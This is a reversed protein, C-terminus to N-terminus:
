RRYMSKFTELTNIEVRRGTKWRIAVGLQDEFYCITLRAKNRPGTMGWGRNSYVENFDFVNWKRLYGQLKEGVLGKELSAIFPNQFQQQINKEILLPQIEAYFSEKNCAVFECEYENVMKSKGKVRDAIKIKAFCGLLQLVSEANKLSMPNLYEPHISNDLTKRITYSDQGTIKKMEWENNMYDSYTILGASLMFTKKHGYVKIRQFGGYKTDYHNVREQAQSVTTYCVTNRFDHYAFIRDHCAFETSRSATQDIIIITPETQSVCTKWYYQNSWGIVNSIARANTSYSTDNKAIIINFDKLEECSDFGNIFQYIHKNKKGKGDSGSLRLVIINRRPDHIMSERLDRVIQLGQSTLSISGDTNNTTFFPIAENILNEELFRAPGCYGPPPEYEVCEGTKNTEDVLEQVLELDEIDDGVNYDVEGSFLVEQPTASYLIFKCLENERFSRYIKGLIQRVGAGFDCEDIHIVIQKGQSLQSNIWAICEDAKPKSIISFVQMNHLNLERRQSDDATRHWASIFVHIRHPKRSQDRMSIYEVIERKGSKVPARILIRSCDDNDLPSLIKERVFSTLHPRETEFNSVSWQVNSDKKPINTM